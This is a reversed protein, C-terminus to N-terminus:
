FQVKKKAQDRLIYNSHSESCQWFQHLLLKRQKDNGGIHFKKKRRISNDLNSTVNIISNKKLNMDAENLFFIDGLAPMQIHTHLSKLDVANKQAQECTSLLLNFILQRSGM